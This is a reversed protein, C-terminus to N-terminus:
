GELDQQVSLIDRLAERLVNIYPPYVRDSGPCQDIVIRSIAKVADQLAAKASVIQQEAEDGAALATPQTTM